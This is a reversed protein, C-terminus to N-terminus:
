ASQFRAAPDKELCRRVVLQLAPPVPRQVSTTLDAVADKIIASVTDAPTVGPFAQRGEIMEYLVCGFSFVDSRQDSEQGRAQEPSMSGPTGVITFPMTHVATFESLAAAAHAGPVAALRALGFDLIKVHQASTIFLNEPKLDRHIIGKSHAAQLGEAIQ